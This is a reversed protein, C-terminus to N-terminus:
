HEPPQLEVPEVLPMQRPEQSAILPEGTVLRHEVPHARHLRILEGVLQLLEQMVLRGDPGGCPVPEKVLGDGPQGEGHVAFLQVDFAREVQEGVGVSGPALGSRSRM